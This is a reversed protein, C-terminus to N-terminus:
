TMCHCNIVQGSKGQGAGAPQSALRCAFFPTDLRHVCNYSYTAPLIRRFDALGDDDLLQGVLDALFNFQVFPGADTAIVARLDAGWQDVASRHLGGDDLLELALLDDDELVLGLLAVAALLAVALLIRAQPDVVDNSTLSLRCIPT